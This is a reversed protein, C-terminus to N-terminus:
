FLLGASVSTTYQNIANDPIKTEGANFYDGHGTFIFDATLVLVSYQLRFGGFVRYRVITDQNPFVANNNLDLSSPGLKYSDVAPTTDLVQGRAIILLVAAGIYPTLTVTGGLGFSKSIEADIQAMTLDIQSAGMVRLGSGRVALSPIPWDHFGEHLAFKGYVQVAFIDSQMLKTAGAGIEFSPLPLWIGKRAYVSFTTVMNPIGATGQAGNKGEVGQQWAQATNNINTFSADFSFQFGSYGITDATTLIKPAIAVSLESVLQRYMAQVAPATPDAFGGMVPPPVLRQLQLDLVDAHAPAPALIGASLGGVLLVGTLWRRTPSRM